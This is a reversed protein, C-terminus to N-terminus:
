IRGFESNFSVQM